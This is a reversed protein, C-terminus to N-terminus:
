RVPSAERGEQTSDTGWVAQMSAACGHTVWGCGGRDVGASLMFHSLLWTGDGHQRGLGDRDSSVKRPMLGDAGSGDRWGARGGDERRWSHVCM